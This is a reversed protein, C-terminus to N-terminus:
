GFGELYRTENFHFSKLYSLCNSKKSFLHEAYINDPLYRNCRDIFDEILVHKCLEKRNFIRMGM